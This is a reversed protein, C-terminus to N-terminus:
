SQVQAEKPGGSDVVLCINSIAGMTSYWANLVSSAMQQHKQWHIGAVTAALRNGKLEAVSM